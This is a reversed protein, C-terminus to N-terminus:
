LYKSIIVSGCIKSYKKNKPKICINKFHYQYRCEKLKNLIREDDIDVEVENWELRTLNNFKKAIFMTAEIRSMKHEEYLGDHSIIMLEIIEKGKIDEYTDKRNEKQRKYSEYVEYITSEKQKNKFM